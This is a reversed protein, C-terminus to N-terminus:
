ENKVISYCKAVRSSKNGVRVVYVGYEISHNFKDPKTISLDRDVCVEDSNPNIFKFYCVTKNKSISIVKIDRLAFNNSNHIIIYSKNEIIECDVYFMISKREGKFIENKLLTYSFIISIILLSIGILFVGIKQIDVNEM